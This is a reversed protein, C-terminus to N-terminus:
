RVVDLCKAPRQPRNLIPTVELPAEIIADDRQGLLM